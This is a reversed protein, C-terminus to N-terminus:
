FSKSVELDDELFIAKEYNEFTTNIGNLINNKLGM